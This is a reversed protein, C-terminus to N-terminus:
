TKKRHTNTFTGTTDVIVVTSVTKLWLHYDSGFRLSLVENLRESALHETFGIQSPSLAKRDTAGSNCRKKKKPFFLNIVFISSLHTTPHHQSQTSYCFIAAIESIQRLKYKYPFGTQDNINIMRSCLYIKATVVFVFVLVSETFVWVDTLFYEEWQYVTHTTINWREQNPSIKWAGSLFLCM